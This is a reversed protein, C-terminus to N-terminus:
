DCKLRKVPRGVKDTHNTEHLLISQVTLVPSTAHRSRTSSIAAVLSPNEQSAGSRKRKKGDSETTVCGVNVDLYRDCKLMRSRFESERGQPLAIKYMVDLVSISNSLKDNGREPLGGHLVLHGDVSCFMAHRLLPLQQHPSSNTFRIRRWYHTRLDFCFIGLDSHGHQNVDIRGFDSNQECGSRSARTGSACQGGYVFMLHNHVEAQHLYRPSPIAAGGFPARKWHYTELDFLWVENSLVYNSDLGGFIVLYNGWLVCSHGRRRPGRPNDACNLSPFVLSWTSNTFSFEWVDSSARCSESHGGYVLLTDRKPFYTCSFHLNVQPRSSALSPLWNSSTASGGQAAFNQPILQRSPVSLRGSKFQVCTKINQHRMTCCVKGDSHGGTCGQHNRRLMGGASIRMPNREHIKRWGVGSEPCQALSESSFMQIRSSEGPLVGVFILRSHREFLHGRCAQKASTPSTGRQQDPPQLPDTADSTLLSCLPGTMCTASWPSIRPNVLRVSGDTFLIFMQQDGHALGQHSHYFCSTSEITSLELQLLPCADSFQSYM